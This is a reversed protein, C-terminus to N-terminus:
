WVLLFVLLEGVIAKRDIEAMSTRDGKSNAFLKMHCLKEYDFAAILTESIFKNLNLSNKGKGNSISEVKAVVLQKLYNISGDKWSIM